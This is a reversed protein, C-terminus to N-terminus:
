NEHSCMNVLQTLFQEKLNNQAPGYVV